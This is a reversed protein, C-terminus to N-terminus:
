SVEAPPGCPALAPGFPKTTRGEWNAGTAANAESELHAVVLEPLLARKARDWKLGFQVDSRCAKGHRTPYPRARAGRWEEEDAHWLQFFGIPVWGGQPSAWRAGVDLGGPFPLYNVQWNGGMMWGSSKLRCWQDWGRVMLRDCGYVFSRDLSALELARRSFLPLRSIPTL